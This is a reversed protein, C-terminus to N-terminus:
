ADTKASSVAVAAAGAVAIPGARAGGGGAGLALAVAVAGGVAGAVDVAQPEAQVGAVGGVGAANVRVVLGVRRLRELGQGIELAHALGLAGREEARRREEAM